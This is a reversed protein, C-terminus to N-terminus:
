AIRFLQINISGITANYLGFNVGNSSIMGLVKEGTDIWSAGNYIQFTADTTDGAVFLGAPILYRSSATVTETITETFSFSGSTPLGGWYTAELYDLGSVTKIVTSAIAASILESVYVSRPRWWKRTTPYTIFGDAHAKIEDFIYYNNSADYWGNKSKDFTVGSLSSVYTPALTTADLKVYETESGTIAIDDDAVYWKGSIYLGSGKQIYGDKAVISGNLMLGIVAFVNNIKQWDSVTTPTGSPQEVETM